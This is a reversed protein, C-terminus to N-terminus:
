NDDPDKRFFRRSHWLGWILAGLGWSWAAYKYHSVMIRPMFDASARTLTALITASIIIRAIWSRKSFEALRGCHGFLVRSAAILCVMGFGGIFLLHELAIKQAYFFAPALLGAIALPLCWIRLSSALTGPSPTGEPLRWRVHSLAFVFAAARLIQGAVPNMWIEVPFSALLAAAAIAMKILSRRRDPASAPEGFDGGLLRPFLFIGVGMIPGLLFGQYLLLGALRQLGPVLLWGPNLWVLTGSLGCILGTGALLMAPPPLNSRFFVLRLGLSLSFAALLSLFLGDGWVTLGCLHSFGNGLHLLFLFILEWPKLRPASLMRPGATGLFGIVFGGGFSEIMMRAHNIGPYFTLHGSYFLPWMAVGAISFLIGSLFFLRYPESGLWVLTPVRPRIHFKRHKCAPFNM